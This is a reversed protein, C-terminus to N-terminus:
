LGLHQASSCVSMVDFHRAFLPQGEEEIQTKWEAAVKCMMELPGKPALFLVWSTDKLVQLQTEQRFAARALLKVLEESTEGGESTRKSTKNATPEVRAKTGSDREKRRPRGTGERHRNRWCRGDTDGSADASARVSVCGGGHHTAQLHLLCFQWLVRPVTSAQRLAPSAAIYVLHALVVSALAFSPRRWM